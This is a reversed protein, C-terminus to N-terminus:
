NREYLKYDKIYYDPAKEPNEKIGEPVYIWKYSTNPFRRRERVMERWDDLGGGLNYVGLEQEFLKFWMWKALSRDLFRGKDYMPPHCEWYGGRERIFHLAILEKGKYAGFVKLEGRRAWDEVTEVPFAWEVKKGRILQQEWLRMFVRVEEKNFEKEQYALDANHKKVYAFNKRAKKSLSKIYEEYNNIPGILIM